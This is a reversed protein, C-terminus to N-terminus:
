FCAGLTVHLFSCSPRVFLRDRQSETGVAVRHAAVKNLCMSPIPSLAPIETVCVQTAVLTACAPMVFPAILM